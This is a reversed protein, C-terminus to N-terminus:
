KEENMKQYMLLASLEEAFELARQYTKFRKVKGHISVLNDNEDLINYYGNIKRTPFFKLNENM